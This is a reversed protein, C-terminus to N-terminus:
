AAETATSGSTNATDRDAARRSAQAVLDRVCVKGGTHREIQACTALSPEMKGAAWRSVTTHSVGLKRALASAGGRTTQFYEALTM